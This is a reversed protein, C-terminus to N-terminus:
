DRHSPANSKEDQALEGGKHMLGNSQCCKKQEAEIRLHQM